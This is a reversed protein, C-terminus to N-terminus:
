TIKSKYTLDYSLWSHGSHITEHPKLMLDREPPIQTIKLALGSRSGGWLIIKLRLFGGTSM